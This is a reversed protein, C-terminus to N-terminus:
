ILQYFMPANNNVKEPVGSIAISKGKAKCQLQHWEADIGVDRSVFKDVVKKGKDVLRSHLGQVEKDVVVFKGEIM